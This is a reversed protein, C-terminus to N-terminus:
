EDTGRVTEAPATHKKKELYREKMEKADAYIDLAKANLKEAEEMVRDRALLVGTTAVTYVKEAEESKLLELGATGLLFGGIFTKWGFKAM